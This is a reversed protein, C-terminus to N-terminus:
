LIREETLMIHLSQQGPRALFDGDPGFGGLAAVKEDRVFVPIQERRHAPIKEDIMLKKVTKAPRRGLRLGDGTRRSRVIYEGPVLFFDNPGRYGKEPCVEAKCHITWTGWCLSGETLPLAPPTKEEGTPRFLLWEYERCVRGGPVDLRASPDQRCALSLGAELHGASVGLGTEEMGRRVARLAAPRTASKLLETPLAVAEGRREARAFIGEAEKELAGEDERLYRSLANIHEVARPNMEELLPILQRRVRNRTYREDGNTEDEVYPIGHADLYDRIEQRSVDLMPRVISGRREPIGTLGRLSCGRILNMLVTEANDGANHGTAICTCGTERATKELFAYRMERACEETGIGRRASEGAVDGSGVTLPVEWRTCLERVFNEDRRASERLRHNYHACRVTYGGQEAGELLRCLLYVSDGGGSLACLVLAGAPVLDYRFKGAM